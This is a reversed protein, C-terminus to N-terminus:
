GFQSQPISVYDTIHSFQDPLQIKIKMDRLNVAVRFSRLQQLGTNLVFLPVVHHGSVKSDSRLIIFIVQM